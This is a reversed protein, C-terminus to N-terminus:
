WKISSSHISKLKNLCIQSAYKFYKYFVSLSLVQTIILYTVEIYIYLNMPDYSILLVLLFFVFLFKLFEDLRFIIELDGCIGLIM